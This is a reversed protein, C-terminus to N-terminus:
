LPSVPACMPDLILHHVVFSLGQHLNSKQTVTRMTQSRCKRLLIISCLLLQLTVFACLAVGASTLWFAHLVLEIATLALAPM